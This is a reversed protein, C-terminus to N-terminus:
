EFTFLRFGRHCGIVSHSAIQGSGLTAGMQMAALLRPAHDNHWCKSQWYGRDQGNSTHTQALRLRAQPLAVVGGM